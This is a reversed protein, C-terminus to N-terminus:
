LMRVVDDDGIQSRCASMLDSIIIQIVQIARITVRVTYMTHRRTTTLPDEVVGDARGEKRRRM